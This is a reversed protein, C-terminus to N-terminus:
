HAEEIPLSPRRTPVHEEGGTSSAANDLAAEKSASRSTNNAQRRDSFKQAIWWTAGAVLLVLMPEIPASFRSSGYFYLCQLITLFIVLYIFLLHRWRKWTLLLGLAALLFIPISMYDVMAAVISSSFRAPFQNMPLDAEPTAPTWMKLLHLGLLYPMDNLHSEVWQAAQRKYATDRQVECTATCGGYKAALQPSTLGPRIWLGKFPTSDSLILPNYAGLLVIGDGTAVPIFQHHSVIYNRATWPAVMVLALLGILVISECASRWSIIKARAVIIAWLCVLVLILLGNPRTLSLLGLLIGSTIMWRRRSTRQILYLTYSFAILLFTYLSESYLWGDYIFLGPYIAAITGAVIAIRKSFFDKALLYVFICTGSGIFCLFLRVSLNKPGLLAYIAAIVTPWVPARGTTPMHPDLCFCREQLMHLAIKEYAQSDYGTIYGRGVTLNYVVRILLALCFIGLAPLYPQLRKM